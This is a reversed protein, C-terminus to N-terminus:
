NPSKVRYPRLAKMEISPKMHKVAGYHNFSSTHSSTLRTIINAAKISILIDNPPCELYTKKKTSAKQYKRKGVDTPFPQISHDIKFTKMTRTITLLTLTMRKKLRPSSARLSSIPFRDKHHNDMITARKQMIRMMYPEEHVKFIMSGKIYNDEPESSHIMTKFYLLFITEEM